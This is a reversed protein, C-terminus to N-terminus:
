EDGHDFEEGFPEDFDATDESSATERAAIERLQPVLRALWADVSRESGDDVDAESAAEELNEHLWEFFGEKDMRITM